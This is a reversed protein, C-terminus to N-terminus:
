TLNPNQIPISVKPRPQNKWTPSSYLDWVFFIIRITIGVIEWNQDGVRVVKQYDTDKNEMTYIERVWLKKTTSWFVKEFRTALPQSFELNPPPPIRKQPVWNGKEILSALCNADMFGDIVLWAFELLTSLVIM